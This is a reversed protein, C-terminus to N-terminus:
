LFYFILSRYPSLYGLMFVQVSSSIENTLAVYLIVLPEGPMAPHLFVFCRRFAGVRHRLDTWGKIPQVAEHEAIKELLSSPSDWTVRRLSLMGLSFCITLINKLTSVLLRLNLRTTEDSMSPLTELICRRMEVLTKVGFETQWIAELLSFYRPTIAHQISEVSKLVDPGDWRSKEDNLHPIVKLVANPNIFHMTALDRMSQQQEHASTKKDM